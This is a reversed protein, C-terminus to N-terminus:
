VNILEEYKDKFWGCYNDSEVLKTNPIEKKNIYVENKM